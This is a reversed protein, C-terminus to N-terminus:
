TTGIMVGVSELSKKLTWGMAYFARQVKIRNYVTLHRYAFAEAGSAGILIPPNSGIPPEHLELARM